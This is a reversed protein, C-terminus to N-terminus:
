TFIEKVQIQFGSILEGGELRDNVTLVRIDGTSSYITVTRLKPSVVWVQHSGALLWESVKQEIESVRDDPSLVDVALDPAGPWYGRAKGVQEVRDRTIFAIDPARVTDPNSELKFGTEAAYVEGLQQAKVHQALPAALHMIIRGHEHGAPSMQKLEGKVLEYRFEGRPLTLLEDATILQVQTAM